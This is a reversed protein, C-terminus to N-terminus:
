DIRIIKIFGTHGESSFALSGAQTDNPAGCTILDGASLTGLFYSETFSGAVAGCHSHSWLADGRGELAPRDGNLALGVYPNNSGGGRQACSIDYTGDRLILCGNLNSTCEISNGAGGGHDWTNVYASSWSTPGEKFGWSTGGVKEGRVILNGAVELKASPTETGIGVNGNDLATVGNGSVAEILRMETVNAGAVATSELYFRWYRHAGGSPLYVDNWGALAPRLWEYIPTWASGDDSHEIHYARAYGAADMFLGAGVIETAAGLDIALSAGVPANNTNWAVTETNGDVTLSSNFNDLNTNTLMTTTVTALARGAATGSVNLFDKSDIGDLLDADLTSGTGMPLLSVALQTTAEANIRTILEEGTLGPFTLTVQDSGVQNSAVLVYEGYDIDPPFLLEVRDNAVAIPDLVYDTNALAFGAKSLNRGEVIVGDLVRTADTPDNGRVAVIEPAVPENIPICRGGECIMDDDCHRDATCVVVCSSSVCVEGAACDSNAECEGSKSSCSTAALVLLLSRLRPM